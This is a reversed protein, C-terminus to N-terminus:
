SPRIQPVGRELFGGNLPLLDTRGLSDLTPGANENPNTGIQMAYGMRKDNRSPRISSEQRCNNRKGLTASHFMPLDSARDSKLSDRVSNKRGCSPSPVYCNRSFALMRWVFWVHQFQMFNSLCKLCPRTSDPALTRCTRGRLGSNRDM